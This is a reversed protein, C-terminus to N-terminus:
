RKAKKLEELLASIIQDETKHESIADFNLRVRHRLVPYALTNIDDYSVNYKGHLLSRVKAATILAQGARPSAGLRLYKIATEGAVESDGHTSSILRMAYDVLEDTIPIERANARM